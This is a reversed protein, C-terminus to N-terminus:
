DLITEVWTQQIKQQHTSHIRYGMSDVGSQPLLFGTYDKHRNLLRFEEVETKVVFSVLFLLQRPHKPFERFTKENLIVKEIVWKGCYPEAFIAKEDMEM